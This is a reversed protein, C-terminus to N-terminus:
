SACYINCNNNNNNSKNKNRGCLSHDGDHKASNDSGVQIIFYFSGVGFAGLAGLFHMVVVSTEQFNAVISMGLCAIAGCWKSATNWSPKLDIEDANIFFEM